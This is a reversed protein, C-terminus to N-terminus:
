PTSHVRSKIDVWKRGTSIHVCRTKCGEWNCGEWNCPTGLSNPIRGQGLCCTTSPALSQAQTPPPHRFKSGNKHVAMREAGHCSMFFLPTKSNKCWQRKDSGGMGKARLNVKKSYIGKCLVQSHMFVLAKTLRKFFAHALGKVGTLFVM